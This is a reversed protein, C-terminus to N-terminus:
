DKLNLNISECAKHAQMFIGKKWRLLINYKRMMSINKKLQQKKLEWEPKPDVGNKVALNQYDELIRITKKIESQNM